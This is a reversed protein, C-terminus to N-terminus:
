FWLKHVHVNPTKCVDVHTNTHTHICHKFKTCVNSYPKTDSGTRLAQKDRSWSVQNQKALLIGERLTWSLAWSWGTVKPCIETAITVAKPNNCIIPPCKIRYKPMLTNAWPLCCHSVHYLLKRGQPATSHRQLLKPNLAKSLLQLTQYVTSLMANIKKQSTYIYECYIFPLTISCRQLNINRSRNRFWHKLFFCIFTFSNEFYIPETLSQVLSQFLWCVLNLKWQFVVKIVLQWNVPLMQAFLIM